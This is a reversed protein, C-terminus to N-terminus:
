VWVRFNDMEKGRGLEDNRMGVIYLLGISSGQCGREMQGGRRGTPTEM